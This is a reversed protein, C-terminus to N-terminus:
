WSVHFPLSPCLYALRTKRSRDLSGVIGLEDDRSFAVLQRVRESKEEKGGEM